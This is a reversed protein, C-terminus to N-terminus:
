QMAPGAPKVASEPQGTTEATETVLVPSGCVVTDIRGGLWIEVCMGNSRIEHGQLQMPNAGSRFINYTKVPRQVPKAPVLLLLMLAMFVWGCFSFGWGLVHLLTHKFM